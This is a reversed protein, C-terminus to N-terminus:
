RALGFGAQIDIARGVTLIAAFALQLGLAISLGIVLEGMGVAFPAAAATMAISPTSVVLLTALALSLVVRVLVPVRFLTFPPAIVFVPGTRLSVLIIAVAQQEFAEL